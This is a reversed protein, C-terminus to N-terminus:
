CSRASRRRTPTPASSRTRARARYVATSELLKWGDLIPKPDVRPAGEGAPRIEFSLHSARRRDGAGIRGLQTGGIIRAGKRLPKAVFRKPDFRLVDDAAPAYAAPALQRAGGARRAAPRAPNAFLREKTAVPELPGAAPAAPMEAKKVTVARRVARGATAPASPKRDRPLDLERRVAAQSVKRQRPSPYTRAVKGLNAYTYTNGYVDQLRVYRGLRESRGMAVVRGDNVAVVPSGKAAFVDIGDRDADAPVIYAANGTPSRRPATPVSSRGPM